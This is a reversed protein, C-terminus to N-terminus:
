VRRVHASWLKVAVRSISRCPSILTAELPPLGALGPRRQPSRYSPQPLTRASQSPYDRIVFGTRARRNVRCNRLTRKPNSNWDGAGGYVDVQTSEIRGMRTM